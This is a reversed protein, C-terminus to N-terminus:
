IVTTSVGPHSVLQVVGSLTDWSRHLPTDRQWGSGWTMRSTSGVVEVKPGSSHLAMSAWSLSSWVGM